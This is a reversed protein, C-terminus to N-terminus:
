NEGPGLFADPSADSGRSTNSNQSEQSGPLPSLPIYTKTQSQTQSKVKSNRLKMLKAELRAIELEAELEEIQKDVVAQDRESDEGEGEECRIPSRSRSRNMYGTRQGIEITPYSAVAQLRETLARKDLVSSEVSGNRSICTSMHPSVSCSSRSNSYGMPTMVKMGQGHVSRMSHNRSLSQAPFPGNTNANSNTNTNSNSSQPPASSTNLSPSYKNTPSPHSGPMASIGTTSPLVAPSRALPAARPHPSPSTSVVTPHDGIWRIAMGQQVTTNSLISRQVATYPATENFDLCCELSGDCLEAGASGTFTSSSGGSFFSSSGALETTNLRRVTHPSSNRTRPNSPSNTNLSSMLGEPGVLGMAFLIPSINASDEQTPPYLSHLLNPLELLRERLLNRGEGMLAAVPVTQLPIGHSHRFFDHKLRTFLQRRPFRENAGGSPEIILMPSWLVGSATQLHLNGKLRVVVCATFGHILESHTVEFPEKALLDTIGDVLRGETPSLPVAKFESSRESVMQGFAAQVTLLQMQLDPDIELDPQMPVVLSLAQYLGLLDNFKGLPGQKISIAANQAALLEDVRCYFSFSIIAFALTLCTTISHINDYTV